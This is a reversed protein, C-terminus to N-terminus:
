DHWRRVLRFTMLNRDAPREHHLIQVMVPFTEDHLGPGPCSLVGKSTAHGNPNMQLQALEAYEYEGDM